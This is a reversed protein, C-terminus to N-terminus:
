PAISVAAMERQRPAAREVMWVAAIMAIALSGGRLFWRQYLV